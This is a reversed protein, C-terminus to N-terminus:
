NGTRIVVSDKTKLSEFRVCFLSTAFVMPVLLLLPEAMSFVLFFVKRLTRLNFSESKWSKSKGVELIQVKM